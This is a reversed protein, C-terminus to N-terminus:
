HHNKYPLLKLDGCSIGLLKEESGECGPGKHSAKSCGCSWWSRESELTTIHARFIIQLFESNQGTAPLSFCNKEEETRWFVYTRNQQAAQKPQKQRYHEQVGWILFVSCWVVGPGEMGEQQLTTHSNVAGQIAGQSCCKIHCSLLYTDQWQPWRSTNQSRKRPPSFFTDKKGM